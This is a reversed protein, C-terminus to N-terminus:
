LKSGDPLLVEFNALKEFEPRQAECNIKGGEVNKFAYHFQLDGIDQVYLKRKIKGTEFDPIERYLLGIDAQLSHKKYELTCNRVIVDLMNTSNEPIVRYK